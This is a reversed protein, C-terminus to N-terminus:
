SAELAERVKTALEAASFPKQLFHVEQDLVGRQSIIDATYGSMFLRKLQPYLSLLNNSLDRGNMGPMVVDTMILHIEGAHESALRMAKAPTGAALVTYGQRELMRATLALIAPEDEVLLITERGRTAPEAASAAPAQVADGAYRPLYISFTTGLGPESDVNVFGRNQRVAGYVTALGLGTGEGVGKTTFFPEFIQAQTEKDMGLGDDSVALRVYEGPVFATQNACYGEDFTCNGTEIIVKGVDAIADRANVCLNALIQDIQSPDVKVPWLSADPKWELRIDEGIMRQLMKLMSSVTENLDLVKPAVAEKRAFVLLQRTLEVSHKAAKHIEELSAYIPQASDTQSMCLDVYGLIVGLMNNFDHAVGGALRGVSEMKQAQNFQAQLKEREEEARKRESIERKLDELKSLQLHARVRALVEKEQFPKVVYDVGGADFARVKYEVDQAASVFIVPINRTSENAKLRRITEYGDIGPMQIDLLILDPASAEVARLAIEGSLAPRVDFGALELMEGLVKLNDPIDDVILITGANDM